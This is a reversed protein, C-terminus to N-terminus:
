GLGDENVVFSLILAFPPVFASLCTRENNVRM